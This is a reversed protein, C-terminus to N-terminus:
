APVGQPYVFDGNDAIQTGDPLGYRAGVTRAFGLVTHTSDQVAAQLTQLDRELARHQALIKIWYEREWEDLAPKTEVHGNTKAKEATPAKMIKKGKTPKDWPDIVRGQEDRPKTSDFWDEVPTEKSM